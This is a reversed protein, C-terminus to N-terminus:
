PLSSGEEVPGVFKGDGSAMGAFRQQGAPLCAWVAVRAVVAAIPRIRQTTTHLSRNM